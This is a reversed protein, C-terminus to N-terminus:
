VFPLMQKQISYKQDRLFRSKYPREYSNAKGALGTSKASSKQETRVFTEEIEEKIDEPEIKVRHLPEWYERSM